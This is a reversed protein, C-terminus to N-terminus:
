RRADLYQDLGFDDLDTVLRERWPEPHADFAELVLRVVQGIRVPDPLLRKPRDSRTTGACGAYRM